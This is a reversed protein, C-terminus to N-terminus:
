YVYIAGFEDINLTRDGAVDNIQEVVVIVRNTDPDTELTYRLATRELHNLTIFSPIESVTFRVGVGDPLEAVTDTPGTQGYELRDGSRNLIELTIPLNPDVRAVPQWPGPQFTAAEQPWVGPMDLCSGLVWGALGLGLTNMQRSM